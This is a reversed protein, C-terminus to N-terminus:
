AHDELSFNGNPDVCLKWGKPLTAEIQRLVLNLRKTAALDREALLRALADRQPKLNGTHAWNAYFFATAAETHEPTFGTRHQEQLEQITPM